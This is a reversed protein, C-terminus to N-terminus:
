SEASFSSKEVQWPEGPIHSIFTNLITDMAEDFDWKVGPCFKYLATGGRFFLKDAIQRHSFLEVIARSIV